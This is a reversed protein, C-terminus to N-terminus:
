AAAGAAGPAEASPSALVSPRDFRAAAFSALFASFAAAFAPWWAAAPATFAPWFCVEPWVTESCTSGPGAISM